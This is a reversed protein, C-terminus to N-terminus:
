SKSSRKLSQLIREFDQSFKDRQFNSDLFIRGAIGMKKCLDPHSSLDIIAAALMKSDGPQVFIGAGASEVVKRIEGDIACIVPRGAAMYDFVKNPYTTKYLDIPKLIALCADSAAFLDAIQNKPVPDLFLVNTLHLDSANQQLSVKEKGDGVFLITISPNNQIQQAASLVTELDNSLGHAGAYTVIFKGILGHEKRFNNGDDAPHFMSPDAGNPILEVRKAGLDKVHSIFGPSNVIVCDAKRYLFKELGLSLTKIIPNKIVGLAIAFAPWLDRVEFLFPVRKFKAILWATFGQFIPPSTGWVVDPRHIKMGVFFSSFMFSFFSLIRHFFSKNYGSYTRARLITIKSDDSDNIQNNQPSQVSRGTLYSVSSAIVTIKHGKGALFRALEAHRTGGPEELSTFAQHILLIHM